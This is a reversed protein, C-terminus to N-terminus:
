RNRGRRWRRVYIQWRKANTSFWGEGRKSSLRWVLGRNGEGAGVSKATASFPNTRRKLLCERTHALADGAAGHLNPYIIKAPRSTEAVRAAVRIGLYSGASGQASTGWRNAVLNQRSSTAAVFPSPAAGVTNHRVKAEGTGCGAHTVDSANKVSHL